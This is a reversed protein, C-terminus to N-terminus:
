LAAGVLSAYAQQGAPTLHIGDSGLWEPHGDSEAKWDLVAIQPYRSPASRIMDNNASEIDAYQAPMRVTLLVVRPVDALVQMIEDLQADSFTGNTGLHVVVRADVGPQHDARIADTGNNAYPPGVQRSVRADVFVDWGPLAQLANAAGLMVSDGVMLVHSGNGPPPTPLPATDPPPATDAPADPPDTVAVVTTPPVTTTVLTTTTSTSTTTTSTSTTTTPAVTTATSTTAGARVVASDANQDTWAAATTLGVLSAAAILLVLWRRVGM